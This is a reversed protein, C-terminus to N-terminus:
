RPAKLMISSINRQLGIGMRINDFATKSLEYTLQTGVIHVQYKNYSVTGETRDFRECRKQYLVLSKVPCDILNNDQDYFSIRADSGGSSYGYVSFYNQKSNDDAFLNVSLLMIAALVMTLKRTM